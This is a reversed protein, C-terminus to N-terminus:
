QTRDRYTASQRLDFFTILEACFNQTMVTGEFLAKIMTANAKKGFYMPDVGTAAVAPEYSTLTKLEVAPIACCTGCCGLVCGLSCLTCSPCLYAPQVLCQEQRVLPASYIVAKMNPWKHQLGEELALFTVTGGTSHSYIYHPGELPAVEALVFESLNRALETMGPLKGYSGRFGESRGHALHDAGCVEFGQQTFFAAVHNYRGLHEAFGHVLVIVKALVGRISVRPGATSLPPAIDPSEPIRFCALASGLPM